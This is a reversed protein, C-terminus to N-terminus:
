YHYPKVDAGCQFGNKFQMTNWIWIFMSIIVSNPVVAFGTVSLEMMHAVIHVTISINSSITIQQLTDQNIHYNPRFILNNQQM